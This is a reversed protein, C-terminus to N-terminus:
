PHGVAMFTAQAMSAGKKHLSRINTKPTGSNNSQQQIKIEKSSLFDVKMFCKQTSKYDVTLAVVARSKIQPAERALGHFKGTENNGM